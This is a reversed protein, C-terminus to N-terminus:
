ISNIVINEGSKADQYMLYYAKGNGLPLYQSFEELNEPPPSNETCPLAYCIYKPKQEEYIIGVSYYDETDAFSVKVFKSDEITSELVDDAPRNDFLSSITKEIQSFFDPMTDNSSLNQDNQESDTKFNDENEEFNKNKDIENDSSTNIQNESAFNLENQYYECDQNINNLIFHQNDLNREIQYDNKTLNLQNSKLIEIEKKLKENELKFSCTECKGDCDCDENSKALTYQLDNEKLNFLSNLQNSLYVQENLYKSDINNTNANTSGRAIIRQNSTSIYEGILLAIENMCDFYDPLNCMLTNNKIELKTLILNSNDYQLIAFLNMTNLSSDINKLYLKCESKSKELYCIKNSFLKLDSKLILIRKVYM